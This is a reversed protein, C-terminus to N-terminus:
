ARNRLSIFTGAGLYLVMLLTVIDWSSIAPALHLHEAAAWLFLVGQGIAFTVAAVVQMNGRVFEDSTRWLRLNFWTQVGFLGLILVFTGSAASPHAKMPGMALVPLLMLVGALVLVAAQIRFMRVEEPTAPMRADEGELRQALRKRSTSVFGVVMGVGVFTIGLWIALFDSWTLLKSDVHLRLALRMLLFGISAGLLAGLLLRSIVKFNFTQPASLHNTASM